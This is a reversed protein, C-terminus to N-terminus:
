KGGRQENEFRLLTRTAKLFAKRKQCLPCRTATEALEHGEVESTVQAKAAEVVAKELRTHEARRETIEKVANDYAEYSPYDGFAKAEKVSM